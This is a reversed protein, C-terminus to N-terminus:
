QADLWGTRQSHWFRLHAVGALLLLTAITVPAGWNLSHPRYTWVITHAGAPVDVARYMSEYTIAPAQKGDVSVSWGPYMLDRLVVTGGASSTAQIVVRNAGYQEIEATQDASNEVFSVRGPADELRYLYLPEDRGWARHLFPDFGSWTLRVPWANTDLPRESLVHTVGAQRLWRIKDDSAAVFQDIASAGEAVPPEPVKLKPDFYVAPGIGLYPPTSSVGLLQPLNAGPAYLRVEDPYSQLIRAVESQEVFEIPPEELMFAYTVIRSVLWLDGITAAFVAAVVCARLGRWQKWGDYLGNLASGALVAVALTTVIGYRGPGMFFSFGPLHRTVPLLWGPTYLLAAIGLGLWMWQKRGYPRFGFWGTVFGWLALALPVMGFYLHAEVKNTNAAISLSNSQNLASDIDYYPSYWLWPAVMQSWYWVPLHGYGPDHDAGVDARQSQQKLEWTPLLQVAAVGFGCSMAVALAAALRVRSRGGGDHKRKPADKQRGAASELPLDAGAFWLRLPVYAALTLQTVFALNYHGALMQLGLGLTLVILYRWHRSQLFSEVCWLALPLYTGGIIAWELCCRPPFWAYVYVLATFLSGVDSLGFRRAYLWTFLFALVYHLLHSAHYAANVDLTSYLLLNPPYLAATQSEAILPYGHGSWNNWLPFEGDALRQSFFTKQPFFYTYLDGGIFGGGLWLPRWFVFTLGVAALGAILFPRFRKM